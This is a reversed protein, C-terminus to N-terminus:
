EKEEATKGNITPHSYKEVDGPNIHYRYFMAICLIIGVIGLYPYVVGIISAFPFLAGFFGIICTVVACIKYRIKNTGAVKSCVTWCLPVATSYIALLILVTFMFAFFPSIAKALELTPVQKDYVKDISSLMGLYFLIAVLMFGAGAVIGGAVANKREKVESGLKTYFPVAIMVTFTVYLIGSVWWSHVGSPHAMNLTKMIEGAHLFGDINQLFSILGILAGIVVIVPGVCGLINVFKEIGLLVTCLVVITAVIRATIENMGTYQSITAGAGSLMVVFILFVMVFTFYDMLMGFKDGLLYGFVQKSSQAHIRRGIDVLVTTYWIYLILAIICGGIGWYGFSVLFQLIEQGSATGAGIICSLCAGAVSIITKLDFKNEKEM